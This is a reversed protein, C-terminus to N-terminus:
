GERSNETTIGAQARAEETSLIRTEDCRICGNKWGIREEHEVYTSSMGWLHGDRRCDPFRQAHEGCWHIRGAVRPWAPNFDVPHIAPPERRCEGSGTEGFPEYYRCTECRIENM